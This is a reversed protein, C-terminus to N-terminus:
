LIDRDGPSSYSSNDFLIFLVALFALIALYLCAAPLIEQRV